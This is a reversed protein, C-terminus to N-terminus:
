RGLCSDLRGLGLNAGSYVYSYFKKNGSVHKLPYGGDDPVTCLFINSVYYSVNTM